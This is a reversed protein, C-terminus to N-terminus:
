FSLKGALSPLCENIDECYPQAVDKRIDFCYKLWMIESKNSNQFDKHRIIHYKVIHFTHKLEVSNNRYMIEQIKSLIYSLSMKLMM